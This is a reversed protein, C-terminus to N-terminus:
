HKDDEARTGQVRENWWLRIYNCKKGKSQGGALAQSITMEQKKHRQMEGYASAKKDKAGKISM